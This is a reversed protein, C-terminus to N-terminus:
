LYRELDSLSMRFRFPVRIPETSVPRGAFFGLMREDGLRRMAMFLQFRPGRAAEIGSGGPGGALYVVPPGTSPFRVFALEVVPSGSVGHREPVRLRGLQAPVTEGAASVFRYPSFGPSADPRAARSCACTPALVVISLCCAVLRCRNGSM